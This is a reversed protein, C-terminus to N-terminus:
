SRPRTVEPKNKPFHRVMYFLTSVIPTVKPTSVVEERSYRNNAGLLDLDYIYIYIYIDWEIRKPLGWWGMLPLKNAPKSAQQNEQQNDQQNAQQSPPKSAQESVAQNAQKIASAPQSAQRRGSASRLNILVSPGLGFVLM